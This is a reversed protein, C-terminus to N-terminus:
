VLQRAKVELYQSVLDAALRENGLLGFRVGRRQLSKELERLKQWRIHGGLRDYVDDLNAVEPDGFIPGTGPPQIMNVLILHQRCILEMNRSFSEALVPDDLATLIVLLSRKRLRLRVFAALEDFDPTVTEPQVTYLADRCAHYHATGNRARLFSQVRDSFTVLGYLDGQQEAAMGLILSATVFRELVTDRGGCGRATLRSHDLIVYVEQTREIQYVKTVPHGRKASAKWHIDEYSDGRVYERLKEFERGKGVQRQARIGGHGRALFLASVNRREDLLNPYVRLEARNPSSGRANWFGLPSRAEFHAADLVYRGRTRPTCKWVLRSEEADAPIAAVLDEEVSAFEEPLALGLRLRIGRRSANRIRLEIEGERDKQMRVLDPLGVGVGRLRRRAAVADLLAVAFLAMIAVTSAALAHPVTAALAGFPLTVLATFFILRNTPVLM